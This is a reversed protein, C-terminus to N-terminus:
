QLPLTLRAQRSIIAPRAVKPLTLKGSSVYNLGFLLLAILIRRRDKQWSPAYQALNTVRTKPDDM